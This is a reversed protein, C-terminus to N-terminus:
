WDGSAGGGGFDGGGGSSFGGGDSGGGSSWGGGGGGWGPGLRGQARRVGAQAIFGTDARFARLARALEDLQVAALRDLEVQEIDGDRGWAIGALAV